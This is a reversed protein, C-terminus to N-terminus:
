KNCGHVADGATSATFGCDVLSVAVKPFWPGFPHVVALRENRGTPFQSTMQKGFVM